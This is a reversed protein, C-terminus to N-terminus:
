VSLPIKRVIESIKKLYLNEKIGLIRASEIESLGSSFRMAVILREQKTLSQLKEPLTDTNPSIFWLRRKPLRYLDSSLRFRIEARDELRDYKHVGAACIETVLKEAADEDALVLYATRYLDDICGFCAQEYVTLNNTTGTTTM